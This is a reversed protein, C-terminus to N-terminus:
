AVVGVVMCVCGRPARLPPAWPLPSRALANWWAGAAHDYQLAGAVLYAGVVVKGGGAGLLTTRNCCESIFEGGHGLGDGAVRGSGGVVVVLAGGGRSWTVVVVM